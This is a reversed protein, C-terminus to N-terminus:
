RPSTRLLIVIVDVDESEGQSVAMVLEYYWFQIVIRM